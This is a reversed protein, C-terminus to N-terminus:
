KKIQKPSPKRKKVPAAPKCELSEQVKETNTQNKKLTVKRKIIKKPATEKVTISAKTEFNDDDLVINGDNLKIKVNTENKKPTIKRKTIKKSADQWTKSANTELFDDEDLGNECNKDNNESKKPILKKKRPSKEPKATVIGIDKVDFDMLENETENKLTLKKKKPSKSDLADPKIPSKKPSKRGKDSYPCIQRNLCEHCNPGIPLCITQGFGVM